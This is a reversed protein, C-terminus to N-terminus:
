VVTVTKWSTGDHFHLGGTQDVYFAGMDGSGPVTAGYPVIRFSGTGGGREAVISYSTSSDGRVGIGSNSLGYVGEGSTSTGLIASSTNSVALIAWSSYSQAWIGYNSYSWARVGVRSNTSTYSGFQSVYYDSGDQNIGITALEEVVSGNSGYFRMENTSYDVGISKTGPFIMAGATHALVGSCGTLTSSTKGTWTFTDKDNTSDSFYGTGSSAFDSTDSLTLTTEGGSTATYLYAGSTIFSSSRTKGSINLFTGDWTLKNGSANGISFKKTGSVDGLWFGTGSDYATQGGSISGSSAVTVAGFTGTAASLAGGFGASGSDTLWFSKTGSGNHYRQVYVTGGDNVPGMDLRWDGPTLGTENLASSTGTAVFVGAVAVRAALTGAAIKGAVVSQIQTSSIAESGVNADIFALDVATTRTAWNGLGSVESYSIASPLTVSYEASETAGVDGFDDYALFRLYYTSGSVLSPIVINNDPGEYFLSANNRAFGTSTGIWLKIAKYDADTPRVYNFRITQFSEVIEVATPLEPQPNTATLKAPIESEGSVGYGQVQGFAIVEFTITRSPTGLGDEINKDLTYTFHPDTVTYTQRPQTDNPYFVKVKYGKLTFPIVAGAGGIVESDISGFEMVVSNSSLRWQLRIDKGTFETDNGQGENTGRGILELGTVDPYNYIAETLPNPISLSGIAMQSKTGIGNVTVVGVDYQVGWELDTIYFSTADTRNVKAVQSFLSDTSKKKYILYYDTYEEGDSWEVFIRPTVLGEISVLHTTSDSILQTIVPKTVDYPSKLTTDNPIPQEQKQTLTYFSDFHEVMTIDCLGDPRISISTLRFEKASWGLTEYTLAVIDGPINELIKNTTTFAIGSKVRSMNVALEAIDIARPYYDVYPATISKSLEQGDESLFTGDSHPADGVKYHRAKDPFSIIVKNLKDKKSPAVISFNGIIDAETLTVTANGAGLVRMHYVGDVYPLAGNMSQLFYETNTKLTQATDVIAGIEYSKYSVPNSDVDLGSRTVDCTNASDIVSQNNLYSTSLGKGYRSNTLYDRLCVAPNSSYITTTTRPDYCKKGRLKFKFQPIGGRFLDQNYALKIYVYAAGPLAHNSDWGPFDLGLFYNSVQSSTGNYFTALAHSNSRGGSLTISRDNYLNAFYTNQTYKVSYSKSNGITGVTDYAIHLVDSGVKSYTAASINANASANLFTVLNDISASLSAGIAFDTGPTITAGNVNLTNRSTFNSDVVTNNLSSLTLDGTAELVGYLPHYSVYSTAHAYKALSEDAADFLPIPEDNMYIKEFGEIEGECVDIVIHLDQNDVGSTNYFILNGATETEGYIVPRSWDPNLQSQVRNENIMASPNPIDPIIAKLAVSGAVGIAASWALSAGGTFYALAGIVVVGLVDGLFSM